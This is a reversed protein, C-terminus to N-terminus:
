SYNLHIKLTEFPPVPTIRNQFASSGFGLFNIGIIKSSQKQTKNIIQGTM